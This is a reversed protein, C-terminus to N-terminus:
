IGMKGSPRDEANRPRLPRRHADGTERRLWRWGTRHLCAPRADQDWLSTGAEPARHLTGAHQHPCPYTRCCGELQDIRANRSSRAARAIYLLEKEHIADAEAFGTAVNGVEGGIDAYINGKHEGGKVHLIPADPAMAAVPDFVAPLITYKVVLARCGAEAAGETEAVVAAVRQGVFRVVNDLMYTDDPDVLHDEHTATSYLRRPVDEWTFVAAVGPVSLAATRDINIIKAHAHPSRLVKLHLLDQVSVDMTYRAHGTVIDESFPNIISSGCAKGALDPEASGVGRLADRIARYGTCRCLNGKLARPLDARQEDDLSAATMIMGAACFGCQFGQADVFARQMPHLGGDAPALGQITTVEHGAARFAPILCSHVATGDIWVTCAGCDGADCGKKVGFIGQDRIFTRLCQGPRPRGFHKQRRDHLDYAAELLTSNVALRIPSVIPSISSILRAVTSTM